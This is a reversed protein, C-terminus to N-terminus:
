KETENDEESPGCLEPAVGSFVTIFECYEELDKAIEPPLEPLKIEQIQQSKDKM